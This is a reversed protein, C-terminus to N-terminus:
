SQLVQWLHISLLEPHKAALAPFIFDAYDLVEDKEYSPDCVFRFECPYPFNQRQKLLVKVEELPLLHDSEVTFTYHDDSHVVVHTITSAALAPCSDISLQKLLIEM